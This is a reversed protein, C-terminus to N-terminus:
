HKRAKTVGTSKHNRALIFGMKKDFQSPFICVSFGNQRLIAEIERYHHSGYNHYEMVINEIIRFNEKPLTSFIEYEAGEIDMKLLGVQAIKNKQCFSPLTETNVNITQSDPDTLDSELLKHNHNDEGILMKRNGATGSLAIMKPHVSTLKNRTLHKKLLKFNDPEPELCFITAQPNLTRCYLSFLGIHAGVDIITGKGINKIIDDASRYERWKFIEAIVSQDVEDRPYLKLTTQNYKITKETKSADSSHTKSM